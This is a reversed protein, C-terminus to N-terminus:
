AIQRWVGGVYVFTVVGNVPIAVSNVTVVDNNGNFINVRQGNNRVAIGTNPLNSTAVAGASGSLRINIERDMRTGLAALSAGASATIDLADSYASKYWADAGSHKMRWSARTMTMTNVITGPLITSAGGDYDIDSIEVDAGAGSTGPRIFTLANLSSGTAIATIRKGRITVNDSQAIVISCSINGVETLDVTIGEFILRQGPTNADAATGGVDMIVHGNLSSISKFTAGVIRGSIIYGPKPLMIFVRDAAVTEFYGGIVEYGGQTTQHSSDDIDTGFDLATYRARRVTCNIAKGGLGGLSIGRFCSDTHCNEIVGYRGRLSFGQGGSSAGVFAGVASCNSFKVGYSTGHTDFAQGECAMAACDSIQAFWGGGYYEYNTSDTPTNGTGESYLHRLREGRCNTMRLQWGGDQVGYGYQSKSPRNALNRFDVGDIRTGYGYNGIARGLSNHFRVGGGIFSDRGARLEVVAGFVSTERISPDTDFTIPGSIEFRTNTLRVLKIGSAYSEILVNSLTVTTGSSTLGISSYEGMRAALAVRGWPNLDNSVVKVIDGRTVSASAAMTLQSVTTRSTSPNSEGPYVLDIGSVTAISNVTGLQEWGGRLRFVGSPNTQIIDVPGLATISRSETGEYTVLGVHYPTGNSVLLVNGTDLAAQLTATDDSGNPEVRTVTTGIYDTDSNGGTPAAIWGTDYDTDSAKALIQGTTGGTPVGPGTAGVTGAPGSPGAAGTPGTAGQQGAVANLRDRIDQDLKDESISGDQITTTSVANAKLNGDPKHAQSLYDNLIQGWKGEDANPTPLRAM